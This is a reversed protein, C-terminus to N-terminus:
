HDKLLSYRHMSIISMNAYMMSSHAFIQLHHCRKNQLAEVEKEIEEDDKGEYKKYERAYKLVGEYM